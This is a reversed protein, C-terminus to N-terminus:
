RARWSKPLMPAFTLEDTEYARSMGCFGFIVAQWIGGCNAIHIGEAAGGKTEDLDIDLAREFFECAEEPKGRLCCLFPIFSARFPLITRPIPCIIGTIKKWRRGTLPKRSCIFLMLVDAQKLAKTRYNREQSVFSGFAKTKDPWLRDFDPEELQEFEACQLIVKDDRRRITLRDAASQIKQLFAEDAGLAKSGGPKRRWCRM